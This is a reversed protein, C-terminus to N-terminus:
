EQNMVAGANPLQPMTSTTTSPGPEAALIATGVTKIIEAAHDVPADHLVGVVRAQAVVDLVGPNVNVVYPVTGTLTLPYGAPYNANTVLTVTTGTPTGDAAPLTVTVNATDIDCALAPAADLNSITVTYIITEGQQVTTKDKVLSLSLRNSNCGAPSQIASTPSALLLLASLVAIAGTLKKKKM